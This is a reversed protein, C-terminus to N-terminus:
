VDVGGYAKMAYHNNTVCLSLKVKKNLSNISYVDLEEYFMDQVYETKDESPAHVNLVIIDYWRSRLTIHPM